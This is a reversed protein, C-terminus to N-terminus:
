LLMFLVDGFLCSYIYEKKKLEPMELVKKVNEYTTNWINSTLLNREELLEPISLIKEINKSNCSWINSTLLHTYKEDNWEKM